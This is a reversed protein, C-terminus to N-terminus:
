RQVLQLVVENTAESLAQARADVPHFGAGRATFSFSHINSGNLSLLRGSVNGNAKYTDGIGTERAEEVTADIMLLKLTASSLNLVQFDHTDGSKLDDFVQSYGPSKLFGARAPIGNRTLEDAVLNEFEANRTGLSRVAVLVSPSSLLSSLLDLNVHRNLESRIRAQERSREESARQTQLSDFRAQENKRRQDAAQQASRDEAAELEDIESQILIV